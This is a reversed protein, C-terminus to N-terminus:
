HGWRGMQRCYSILAAISIAQFLLGVVICGTWALMVTKFGWERAKTWGYIFAILVGAMCLFVNIPVKAAQPFVYTIPGRFACFAHLIVRGLGGQAILGFGAGIVCLAICAIGIGTKRRRFMHILVLILCTLTGLGAIAAIAASIWLALLLWPM